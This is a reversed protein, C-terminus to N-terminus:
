LSRDVRPSVTRTSSGAANNTLNTLQLHDPVKGGIGNSANLFTQLPTKHAVNFNTFSSFRQQQSMNADSLTEEDFYLLTLHMFNFNCFRINDRM